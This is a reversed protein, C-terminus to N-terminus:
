CCGIGSMRNGIRSRGCAIRSKMFGIRSMMCCIKGFKVSKGFAVAESLMSTVKVTM